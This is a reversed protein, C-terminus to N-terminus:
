LDAPMHILQKYYHVSLTVRYANKDCDCIM